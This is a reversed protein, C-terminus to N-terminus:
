KRVNIKGEEVMKMVWNMREESAQKLREPIGVIDGHENWTFGEKDTYSEYLEDKEKNMRKGRM